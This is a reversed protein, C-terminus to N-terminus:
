RSRGKAHPPRELAKVQARLDDVRQNAAFLTAATSLAVAARKMEEVETVLKDYRSNVLGGTHETTAQIEKLLRGHRWQVYGLGLTSLPVLTGILAMWVADSM